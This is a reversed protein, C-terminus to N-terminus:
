AFGQSDTVTGHLQPRHQQSPRWARVADDNEPDTDVVCELAAADAEEDTTDTDNEFHKSQMIVREGDVELQLM